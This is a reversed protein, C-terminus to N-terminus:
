NYIWRGNEYDHIITGNYWTDSSASYNEYHKFWLSTSLTIGSKYLTEWWRVSTTININVYQQNPYIEFNLYDVNVIDNEVLSIGTSWDVDMSLVCHDTNDDCSRYFVMEDSGTQSKLYLIGTNVINFHNVDDGSAYKGTNIKYELSKDNLMELFNESVQIATQTNAMKTNARQTNTYAWLIVWVMLSFLILSLMVELMTFGSKKM